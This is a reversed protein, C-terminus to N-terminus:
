TIREFKKILKLNKLDFEIHSNRRGAIAQGTQTCPRCIARLRTTSRVRYFQNNVTNQVIDDNEINSM